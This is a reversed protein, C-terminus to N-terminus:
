KQVKSRQKTKIKKSKSNNKKDGIYKIKVDKYYSNPGTKEVTTTEFGNEVKVDKKVNLNEDKKDFKELENVQNQFMKDIFAKHKKFAKNMKYIERNFDFDFFDDEFSQEVFFPKEIKKNNNNNNYLIKTSYDLTPFMSSFMLKACIIYKVIMGFISLRICYKSNEEKGCFLYKWVAVIIVGIIDFIAGISFSIIKAIKHKKKDDLNKINELIKSM